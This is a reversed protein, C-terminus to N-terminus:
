ILEIKNSGRYCYKNLLSLFGNWCIPVSHLASDIFLTLKHAGSCSCVSWCHENTGVKAEYLTALHFHFGVVGDRVSAWCGLSSMAGMIMGGPSLPDSQSLPTLYWSHHTLSCTGAPRRQRQQSNGHCVITQVGSHICVFWCHSAKCHFTTWNHSDKGRTNGDAAVKQSPPNLFLHTKLTTEVERIEATSMSPCTWVYLNNMDGANNELRFGGSVGETPGLSSSVRSGGSLSKPILKAM